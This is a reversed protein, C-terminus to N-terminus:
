GAVRATRELSAIDLARTQVCPFRIFVAGVRAFIARGSQTDRRTEITKTASARWRQFEALNLRIGSFNGISLETVAQHFDVDHHAIFAEFVISIAPLNAEQEEKWFWDKSRGRRTSRRAM